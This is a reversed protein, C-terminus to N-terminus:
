LSFIKLIMYLNLLYEHIFFSKRKILDNRKLSNYDQGRIHEVKNIVTNKKKFLLIYNLKSNM